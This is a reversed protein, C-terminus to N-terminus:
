NSNRGDLIIQIQSKAGNSLQQSLNSPLRVILLAEQKDLTDRIQQESTLFVTKSFVTSHTLREILDRSAKGNDPNYIGITANTVDLTAAYPFVCVQIIVPLFLILRTLNNRLLFNLEKRVLTYIRYFM